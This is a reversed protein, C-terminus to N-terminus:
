SWTQARKVIVSSIQPESVEMLESGFVFDSVVQPVGPNKDVSFMLFMEPIHDAVDATASARLGGSIDDHRTEATDSQGLSEDVILLERTCGEESAPSRLGSTAKKSKGTLYEYTTVGRSCLFAHFAVLCGDLCLFPTNLCLLGLLVAVLGAEALGGSVEIWRQSVTGDVFHEVVLTASLVVLVLLMAFLSIITTAFTCYNRAGICTNLWPCHHDFGSVCKQCTWCHKSGQMVYADCFDCYLAETLDFEETPEDLNPDAPDVAM